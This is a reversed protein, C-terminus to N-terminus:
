GGRNVDRRGSAHTGKSFSTTTDLHKAVSYKVANGGALCRVEEFTNDTVYLISYFNQNHKGLSIAQLRFTEGSDTLRSDSTGIDSNSIFAIRDTGSSNDAEWLLDSSNTYCLFARTSINNGDSVITANTLFVPQMNVSTNRIPENDETNMPDVQNSTTVLMGNSSVCNVHVTSGTPATVILISDLQRMNYRLSLLSAYYIFNHSIGFIVDELHDFVAIGIGDIEWALLLSNKVNCCFFLNSTFSNINEKKIFLLDVEASGPLIISLLM